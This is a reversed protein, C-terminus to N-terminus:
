LLTELRKALAPRTQLNFCRRAHAACYSYPELRPEACFLTQRGEGSVPYRCDALRLDMLTVPGRDVNM